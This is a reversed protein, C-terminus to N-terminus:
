EAHAVDRPHVRVIEKSWVGGIEVRIYGTDQYVNVVEGQEGRHEGSVIEVEDGVSFAGVNENEDANRGFEDANEFDSNVSSTFREVREGAEHEGVVTYICARGKSNNYDSPISVVDRPNIKLIVVRGSGGHFAGLYELSCFHFGTSCTNDRKDDVQNRPMELVQGVSNDFTNTHYDKYDERVKKYALFHGDPTIPLDNSELFGYLENVATASPNSMLNELFAALPAVDFGERMMSLMRKTLSNHLETNKYRVVGDNVTISGNSYKKVSRDLDALDLFQAVTAGPTKLLDVIRAFNVHADNIAHRKGEAIVTVNTETIMMPLTSVKAENINKTM